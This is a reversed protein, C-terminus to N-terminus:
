KESHYISVPLIWVYHFAHIWHFQHYLICDETRFCVQTREWIRKWSSGSLLFEDFIEFEMSWGCIWDLVFIDFVAFNGGVFFQFDHNSTSHCSVKKALFQLIAYMGFTLITVIAIARWSSALFSQTYVWASSDTALNM